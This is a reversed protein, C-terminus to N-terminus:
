VFTELFVQFRKQNGAPHEVIFRIVNTKYNVGGVYTYPLVQTARGDSVVTGTTAELNVRSVFDISPSPNYEIYDPLAVVSIFWEDTTGDIITPPVKVWGGIVEYTYTPVFDLTTKVANVENEQATIEDGESDWLKLEVDGYPSGTLPNDSKASNLKASYFWVARLKFNKAQNATTVRIIQRGDASRAPELPCNCKFNNEFDTAADTDKNFSCTRFVREDAAAVKYSDGEDVWIHKLSAYTGNLWKKFESWGEDSYDLVASASLILKSM